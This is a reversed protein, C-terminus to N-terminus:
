LDGFRAPSCSSWIEDLSTGMVLDAVSDATLPALLAGNRYHGTAYFLGDIQRSAGLIPRDDPTAPRLGVRVEDFVARSLMPLLGVAAEMLQRVGEVTSREDFGVREVTAGVLVTGNRWPVLYCGPGWLTHAPSEDAHLRLLQGRVPEVPLAPVGELVIEGSWCGATLVVQRATVAGQDTEVCLTNGGRRVRRARSRMLQAGRSAASQWLAAVLAPVDVAGHAPIALGAVAGPAISPERALLSRRDLRECETRDVALADAVDDLAAAGAADLAVDISGDRSYGVTLGEARLGDILSDYTELSRAGLTLLVPDHRGESFPALMGASAQSAGGGVKRPDILTVQAGRMTLTRAIGCGIVGGGLVVVDSM